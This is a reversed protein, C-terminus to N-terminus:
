QPALGHYVICATNDRSGSVFRRGDPLLALSCVVNTHHTFTRLVAGDNVNFLKIEGSGPVGHQSVTGSGSLAHQNDPMAVLAEVEGTHLRFTKKLTGGLLWLRVTKDSAGSLFRQGDPMVALSLIRGTHGTFTREYSKDAVNWLRIQCGSSGSIIRQGGHAVAVADVSGAHFISDHAFRHVFTGDVHFLVADKQMGLGLVFHVGDPLAAVCRFPCDAHIITREFAGDSTWLKAKGDTSCSIFRSGGPLVTVDDVAHAQGARVSRVCAGDRWVKITRDWSGTIIGGDPVVAVCRVDVTHGALTVVESSFPRLKLAIKAADCLVHCALGTRAIDHALPLQYLVLGLADTPLDILQRAAARAAARAARTKPM